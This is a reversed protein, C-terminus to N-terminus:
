ADDDDFENDDELLDEDDDDDDDDDDDNDRQDDPLASAWAALMRLEALEHPYLLVPGPEPLVLARKRRGRWM